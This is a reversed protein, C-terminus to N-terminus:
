SPTSRSLAPTRRPATGCFYDVLMVPADLVGLIYCQLVKGTRGNGDSFSHCLEFDRYIWREGWPAFHCLGSTSFKIAVVM